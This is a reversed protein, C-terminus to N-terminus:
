YIQVVKNEQLYFKLTPHMNFLKSLKEYEFWALEIKQASQQIKECKLMINKPTHAAPVFEYVTVKYGYAELILTRLSDSIMDALREKYPKHRAVMAMPHRKMQKRATHQCCSVSLIYKANEMMSKYIMQDTAIDCAHLSYAIDPPQPFDFDVIDADYFTMNTMKMKDATQRCLEILAKDSDICLFAVNTFGDKQLYYNLYFSLYSRGCGCDYLYLTRKTSLKKIISKVAIYYDEIQRQKYLREKYNNGNPSALGILMNMEQIDQLHQQKKM